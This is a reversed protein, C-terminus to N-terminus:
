QSNQHNLWNRAYEVWSCAPYQQVLQEYAAKIKADAQSDELAGSEKLAEYNQGVLFLANWSTEFQPYDDVLKQYRGISKEYNGLKKYCDGASRLARPLIDAGPFEDVVRDFLRAAQQFCTGANGDAEQNALHYAKLHYHVGLKYVVFPLHPNGSFDAILSDIEESVSNDGSSEILSLIDVKRIDVPAEAAESTEPCVQMIQQYTSTAMDFNSYKEYRRAIEYLAKSLNSHEAYDTVLRDTAIQAGTYDGLEINSIVVGKQAEMAHGANPWHDVVYQHWQRAKFYQESKRYEDAVIDLADAINNSEAFDTVLKNLETQAGSEDGILICARVVGAQAQPTHDDQPCNNVVYRYLERARSYNRKERYIDAIEDVREALDKNGAFTSTLKDLEVQTDIGEHGAIGLKVLTTQSEIAHEAQPWTNVVYRCLDIAKSFNGIEKYGDGVHDIAEAIEPYDSYSSLLEQYAADAEAQKGWLIYLVTLKEQAELADNSDPYETLIQEYIAEAQEYQGQDEYEDAQDFQAEVDALCTNSLPFVLLVGSIFAMFVIHKVM